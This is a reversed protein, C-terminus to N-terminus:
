VGKRFFLKRPKDNNEKRNLKLQNIISDSIKGIDKVFNKENYKLLSKEDQEAQWGYTSYSVRAFLPQRYTKAVEYQTPLAGDNQFKNIILQFDDAGFTTLLGKKRDYNIYSTKQQTAVLYKNNTTYLAALSLGRNIHTGGDIIVVDCANSFINLLQELHHPHYEKRYLLSSVGEIVFLNEKIEEAINFIETETIISSILKVKIDDINNKFNVDIYETSPKGNLFLLGVKCTTKEVLTEAVCQALQTVGVKTDAGFFTIINKNITNKYNPIVEICVQEVKQENTKNSLIMHINKSELINKTSFRFNDDSVIYFVYNANIINRAELLENIDVLIDDVVLIDIKEPLESLDNGKTFNTFHTVHQLRRTFSNDSVITHVFNNM